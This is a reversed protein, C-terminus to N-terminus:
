STQAARAHSLARGLSTEVSRADETGEGYLVRYGDIATNAAREAEELKGGQALVKALNSQWRLSDPHMTGLLKESTSVAERALGEAAQNDGDQQAVASLKGVATMTHVHKDGHRERQANVLSEYLERSSSINGKSLTSAAAKALHKLMRDQALSRYQQAAEPTAISMRRAFGRLMGYAPIIKRDSPRFSLSRPTSALKERSRRFDTVCAM